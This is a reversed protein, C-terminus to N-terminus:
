WPLTKFGAEQKLKALFARYADGEKAQKMQRELEPRVEELPRTEKKRDVVLLIHYGYKTEVIDSIEDLQMSFIKDEFSKVM